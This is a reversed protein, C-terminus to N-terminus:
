VDFVESEIRDLMDDNVGHGAQQLRKSRNRACGVADEALKRLRDVEACAARLQESASRANNRLRAIAEAYPQRKHTTVIGYHEHAVFWDRNGPGHESARYKDGIATDDEAMEEALRAAEIPNFATM